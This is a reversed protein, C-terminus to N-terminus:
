PYLDPAKRTEDSLKWSLDEVWALHNFNGIGSREAARRFTLLEDLAAKTAANSVSAPKALTLLSSMRVCLKAHDLGQKLFAVRAACEADAKAVDTAKALL